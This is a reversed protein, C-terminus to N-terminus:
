HLVMEFDSNWYKIPASSEFRVVLLDTKGEKRKTLRQIDSRIKKKSRKSFEFEFVISDLQQAPNQITKQVRIWFCM